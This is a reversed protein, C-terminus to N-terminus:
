RCSPTQDNLKVRSLEILWRLFFLLSSRAFSQRIFHHIMSENGFGTFTLGNIANMLSLKPNPRKNQDKSNKEFFTEDEEM